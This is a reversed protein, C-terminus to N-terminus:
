EGISGPELLFDVFVRHKRTGPRELPSIRWKSHTSVRRIITPQPKVNVMRWSKSWEIAAVITELSMKLHEDNSSSVSCKYPNVDFKNKSNM